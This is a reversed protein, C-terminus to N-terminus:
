GNEAFQEMLWNVTQQVDTKQANSLVPFPNRAIGGNFGRLSAAYKVGAVGYQGSIAKGAKQLALDLAHPKACHTNAYINMLRVCIEPAYNAASLVGGVAGNTMWSFFKGQSGALIQFVESLYPRYEEVPQKSTDKMGICNPHSSLVKVVKGPIEVGAAYPPAAYLVIPLPSQDAVALYFRHLGEEGVTKAFFSPTLVFVKEAGADACKRIWEITAHASERGAGVMLTVNPDMGRKVASLVKLSEGDDLSRFEGNSGLPMLGTVGAACLKAANETMGNYDVLETDEFFPTVMPVYIGTPLM